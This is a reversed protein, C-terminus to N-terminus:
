YEEIRYIMDGMNFINMVASVPENDGNWLYGIYTTSYGCYGETIIEFEGDRFKKMYEEMSIAEGKFDGRYVTRDFLLVSCEEIDCGEFVIDGRFIEEKEETYRFINDTELTLRGEGYRIKKVRSDHLSFPTGSTRNYTYNM